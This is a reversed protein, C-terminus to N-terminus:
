KFELYNRNKLITEKAKKLSLNHGIPVRKGDPNKVILDWTDDIASKLMEMSGSLIFLDDRESQYEDIEFDVKGELLMSVMILDKDSLKDAEIWSPLRDRSISPQERRKPRPSGAPKKRVRKPVVDRGKKIQELKHTVWVGKGSDIVDELDGPRVRRKHAKMAHKYTGIIGTGSKNIVHWAEDGSLRGGSGDFIVKYQRPRAAKNLGKITGVWLVPKKVEGRNVVVRSDIVLESPKAVAATEERTKTQRELKEQIRENNLEMLRERVMGKLFPWPSKKRRLARAMVKISYKKGLEDPVMNWIIERARENFPKKKDAGKEFLELFLKEAAAIRIDPSIEKPKFLKNAYDMEVDFESQLAYELIETFFGMQEETGFVTVNVGTKCQGINLVGAVIGSYRDTVEGVIRNINTRVGSMNITDDKDPAMRIKLLAAGDRRRSVPNLTIKPNKEPM